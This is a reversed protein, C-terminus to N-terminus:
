NNEIYENAKFGLSVTGLQPQAAMTEAASPLGKGQQPASGPPIGM